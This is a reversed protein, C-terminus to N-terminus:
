HPETEVCFERGGLSMNRNRRPIGVVRLRPSGKYQRGMAKDSRLELTLWAPGGLRSALGSDEEPHDSVALGHVM